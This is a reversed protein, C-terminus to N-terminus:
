FMLKAYNPKSIMDLIPKSTVAATDRKCVDKLFL